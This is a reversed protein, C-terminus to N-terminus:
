SPCAAISSSCRARWPWGERASSASKATVAPTISGAGTISANEWATGGANGRIFKNAEPPPVQYDPVEDAAGSVKIGRAALDEVQQVIMTLYDITDEQVQAPFPDQDTYATNQVYDLNREVVLKEPPSGGAPTFTLATVTFGTDTINTITYDTDLTKTAPVGDVDFLRVLADAAEFIRFNISWSTTVGNGLKVNRNLTTEVTM